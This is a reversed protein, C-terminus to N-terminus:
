DASVTLGIQDFGAFTPDNTFTTSIAAGTTDCTITWLGVGGAAPTCAYVAVVTETSVVTNSFTLTSTVAMVNTSTTFTVASVQSPDSALPTIATDTVTAGTVAEAAYGAVPAPSSFTNSATFAVGSGIALGATALLGIFKSL